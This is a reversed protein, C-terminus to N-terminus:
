GFRGIIYNGIMFYVFLIAFIWAEGTILLIMFLWMPIGLVLMGICFDKLIKKLTTKKKFNM